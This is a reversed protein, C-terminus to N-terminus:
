QGGGWMFADAKGTLVAWADKIRCWFPGRLPRSPLWGEVWYMTKSPWDQLDNIHFM